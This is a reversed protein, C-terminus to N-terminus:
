TSLHWLKLDSYYTWVDILGGPQPFTFYYKKGDSQFGGGPRLYLRPLSPQSPLLDLSKPYAGHTQRYAELLPAVADPYAKAADVDREHFYRNAPVAVGVLCALGIAGLLTVFSPRRAKKDCMARVFFAVVIILLPTGIIFLAIVFFFMLFPDMIRIAIGLLAALLVEIFSALYFRGNM